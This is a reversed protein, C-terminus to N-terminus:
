DNIFLSHLFIFLVTCVGVFVSLYVSVSRDRDKTIAVIGTALAVISAPFTIAVTADWWKDDFSLIDLVVVSVVSAAIAILFFASLAVSWKGLNTTPM